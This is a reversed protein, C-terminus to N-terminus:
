RTESASHSSFAFSRSTFSSATSLNLSSSECSFFASSLHPPREGRLRRGRRREEGGEGETKRKRNEVIEERENERKEKEIRLRESDEGTRRMRM